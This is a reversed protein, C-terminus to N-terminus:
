WMVAEHVCLLSEVLVANACIVLIVIRFIYLGLWLYYVTRVVKQFELPIDVSIDHYFCPQM